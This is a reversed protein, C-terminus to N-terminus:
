VSDYLEIVEERSLRLARIQALTLRSPNELIKDATKDCVGLHKMLYQRASQSSRKACYSNLKLSKAM